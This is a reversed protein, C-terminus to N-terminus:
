RQPFLTPSKPDLCRLSVARMVDDLSAVHMAGRGIKAKTHARWLSGAWIIAGLMARSGRGFRELGSMGIAEGTGGDLAALATPATMRVGFRRLALEVEDVLEIVM